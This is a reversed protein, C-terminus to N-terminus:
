QVLSPLTCKGNGNHTRCYPHRITINHRLSPPTLVYATINTPTSHTRCLPLFLAYATIHAPSSHNHRLSPRTLVYATIKTPSSYKQCLFPRNALPFLYFNEVILMLHFLVTFNEHAPPPPPRFPHLFLHYYVLFPNRYVIRRVYQM